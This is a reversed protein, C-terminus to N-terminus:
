HLHEVRADPEKLPLVPSGEFRPSRLPKRFCGEAMALGYKVRSKFRSTRPPAPLAADAELASIGDWLRLTPDNDPSLVESIRKLDWHPNLKRLSESLGAEARIALRAAIQVPDRWQYHRFGLRRSGARALRKPLYTGEEWRLWPLNRFARIMSVHMRYHRRREAIPRGRDAESERGEQWARYEAATYYFNAHRSFVHDAGEHAAGAIVARVNGDLFEDADVTVWWDRPTLEKRYRNWLHCRVDEPLSPPLEAALVVNPLTVALRRLLATSGDDSGCDVVLLWDLLAANHTVTEELIDAENRVLMTGALRPGGSLLPGHLRRLGEAFFRDRVAGVYHRAVVGPRADRGLSVEYSPPLLGGKGHRSAALAFLTQEARWPHGEAVEPVSLWREMSDLDFISKHLLCLGSNVRPWLRFGLERECSEPKILNAEAVDENFWCSDDGRETWALIADPREFFLLDSDLVLFRPSEALLPIDFCKMGLPLARRYALCRPHRALAEEVARDADRRWHIRLGGFLRALADGAAQELTGDDHVVVTWNRGTAHFFSALMWAAYIWDRKGTLIHVHAPAAPKGAHPNRWGLIRPSTAYDHWTAALGRNWDRRALWWLRGPRM